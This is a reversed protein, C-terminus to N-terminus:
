PRPEPVFIFGRGRCGPRSTRILAQWAADIDDRESEPHHALYDRAFCSYQNHPALEPKHGQAVQARRTAEAQLADALTAGHNETIWTMLTITFSFGPGFHAAFFSRVNQTNRYSDSIVTAADLPATRWDLQSSPKHSEPGLREGSRLFHSIRDHIQFKGGASSLGLKHALDMLEQRYWYHADFREPDIGAHLEPRM